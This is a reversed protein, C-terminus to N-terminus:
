LLLDGSRQALQGGERHLGHEHFAGVAVRALVVDGRPDRLEGPERPERGPADRDRRDRVSRELGAHRAHHSDAAHRWRLLAHLDIADHYAARAAPDTRLMAALRAHDSETISDDLLVTILRPLDTACSDITAPDRDDDHQENRPNM